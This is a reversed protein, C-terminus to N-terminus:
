GHETERGHPDLLVMASSKVGDVTERTYRLREVGSSDAVFRRLKKRDLTANPAM